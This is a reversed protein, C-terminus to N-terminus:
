NFDNMARDVGDRVVAAVADAACGVATKMVAWEAAGFRSLVHDVMDRGETQSGIGVRLRAFEDSGLEQIVSKLGNHGGAGGKPRIRLRGLELDVDDVVVLLDAVTGGRKKLLPRVAQGSLNMFTLPKVLLVEQGALNIRATQASALWGKRFSVDARRALEDVVEFGVNHRTREYDRGPNGLGVVLKMIACCGPGRIM